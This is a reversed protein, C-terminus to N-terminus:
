TNNKRKRCALCQRTTVGKPSTYVNTNEPTFEHGWKCHSKVFREGLLIGEIGNAKRYSARERERHCTKCHRSTGEVYTNLDSYPHGQPCHTKRAHHALPSEGRACNEEHTVAELHAPNVCARHPCDNNLQCNTGNHCTHDIETGEPIPGVLLEYVWRHARNHQSSQSIWFNGYGSSTKRGTWVWCDGSKDVRAWFRESM